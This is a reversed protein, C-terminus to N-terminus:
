RCSHLHGLHKPEQRGWSCRGRVVLLNVGSRNVLIRTPFL